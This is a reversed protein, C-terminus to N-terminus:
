TASNCRDYCRRRAKRRDKKKCQFKCDASPGAAAPIGAGFVGLSAVGSRTALDRMAIRRTVKAALHTTLTLHATERNM